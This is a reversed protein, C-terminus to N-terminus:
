FNMKLRVGGIYATNAITGAEPRIIQVDPTLEAWPTLKFNYFAEVGMGDRPGFVAQPLPGFETSAGVYYLGVGFTDGRCYGIPSYGGIGASLFYRIPTPNGDSISARGFLGWGKKAKEDFVQVYQDFGTYITYSDNLTPFGPVTPEPYVGPPPEAFKLDTLEVHKWMGGVHIDGPLCFNNTKVKVEGGVIVGQSFLENPRFGVRTRDQPDLVFGSFSGWERPSVFGATFSSYPLGLLFAPNAVFAQNLFQDTGNGGAFADQDATGVVNKKGAFVVWEKSLPQTIFFDTLFISGNNNPAPPIAAAFVAPEFAGTSLSVNGYQGFWQQARITLSGKPMGGFKELDIKVEYEARGTYESTDGLQLAPVRRQQVGGIVGFGFQTLDGGFTIGSEKLCPRLGCWDGTMTSRTWFNECKIDCLVGDIPGATPLSPDTPVTGTTPPADSAPVQSGASAQGPIPPSSSSQALVGTAGVMLGLVASKLLKM